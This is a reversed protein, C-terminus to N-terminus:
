IGIGHETNPSDGFEVGALVCRADIPANDHSRLAFGPESPENMVEAGGDVRLRGAPPINRLGVPFTSGQTDGHNQVSRTLGQDDIHQLRFPLSSEFGTRIPKSRPATSLIGDGGDELHGSPWLGSPKPHQIRVERPCEVMDSMSREEGSQPCKGSAGQNLAPQLGAHDFLALPM